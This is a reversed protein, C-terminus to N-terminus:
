AMGSDLPLPGARGPLGAARAMFPGWRPGDPALCAAFAQSGVLYGSLVFFLDVGMWGSEVPAPLVVGYSTVHYAMVWVIAVARLLDLGPM